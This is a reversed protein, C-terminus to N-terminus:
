PRLNALSRWMRVGVPNQLYGGVPVSINRKLPVCVEERVCVCVRLPPSLLSVHPPTIHQSRCGVPAVAIAEVVVTAVAAAAPSRHRTLACALRTRLPCSLLLLLLLRPLPPLLLLPLLALTAFCPSSRAALLPLLPAAAAPPASPPHDHVRATARSRSTSM